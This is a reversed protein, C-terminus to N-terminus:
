LMGIAYLGGALTAFSACTIAWNDDTWRLFRVGSVDGCVLEALTAVAAVSLSLWVPSIFAWGIAACALFMSVSGQLGKVPRRYVRQRVIGTILDGWAMMLICATSEIPHKFVGWGIILVVTSSLPFWVEAQTSARGVGRFAAPGSTLRAIALLLTFASSLAIPWWPESFLLAALLYAMGGVGHGVKRSLYQPTGYDLFQNSLYLGVLVAGIIVLAYPVGYM